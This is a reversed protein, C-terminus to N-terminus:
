EPSISGVGTFGALAAAMQHVDWVRDAGALKLAAAPMIGALAQAPDQVWAHGGCQRVTALGAAGDASAGTLIIGLMEKGYTYAASEFLVDIAPRSYNVAADLSLSFTREPEIQLHYDAVAFYVTGALVAEKDEAEKLRLQCRQAYLQPLRSSRDPAMHLVVVFAAPCNAPIARLLIGLAEVGGASAGIAVLRITGTLRDARPPLITQM